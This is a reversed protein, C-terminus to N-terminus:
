AEARYGRRSCAEGTGGEGLAGTIEMNGLNTGVSLPMTYDIKVWHDPGFRILHHIV